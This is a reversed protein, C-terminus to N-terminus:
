KARKGRREGRRKRSEHMGKCMLVEHTGSEVIVGNDLVVIQDAGMVTSLRHAVLVM